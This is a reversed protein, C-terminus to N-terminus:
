TKYDDFGLDRLAASSVDQCAAPFLAGSRRLVTEAGRQKVVPRLDPCRGAVNRIAQCAQRQVWQAAPVRGMTATMAQVVCCSACEVHRM